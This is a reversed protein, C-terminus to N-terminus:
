CFVSERNRTWNVESTRRFMHMHMVDLVRLHKVMPKSSHWAEYPTMGDVVKTPCRNRLYSATSIAEAWFEHPLKADLLMSHASEVLTRNLREAVGNQEPTKPITCEHCIGESKLFDEFKKFTYEGGNDTRLIKLKKGSSKEVLAKWERFHDFVQDKTKLPYIWSYRTRDDTFTLFYEAGGISKNRM